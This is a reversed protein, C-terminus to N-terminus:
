WYGQQASLRYDWVREPTTATDPPAALTTRIGYMRARLDTALDPHWRLLNNTQMPDRRVDHLAFHTPDLRLERLSDTLGPDLACGHHSYVRMTLLYDGRRLGIMDGLETYAVADPDGEAPLALLDRGAVGAPVTAGGLRALTPFLDRLEVPEGSSRPPGGAGPAYVVLPVHVVRELVLRSQFPPTPALFGTFEVLSIGNVGALFVWADAAITGLAVAIGRGADVAVRSYVADAAGAAAGGAAPDLAGSAHFEQMTRRRRTLALDSVVITLLRPSPATRWWGDVADHMASWDTGVPDEAPSPVEEVHAHGRAVLAAVGETGSSFLATHYGYLSLVEALTRREEPLAACWPPSSALISPELGCLPVASTYHGTFLSGLSAFADPSQAYASRFRVTPARGLGTLVSEEAGPRGDADARLHQMLVLVLDPSEPDAAVVPEPRVTVVAGSCAVFGLWLITEVVRGDPCAM